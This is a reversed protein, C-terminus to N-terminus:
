KTPRVNVDFDNPLATLSTFHIQSWGRPPVRLMHWGSPQEAESGNYLFRYQFDILNEDGDRNYVGVTVDVQGAGVRTVVPTQFYLDDSLAHSTLHVQPPIVTPDKIGPIPRDCAALLVTSALLLAIRTHTLSLM